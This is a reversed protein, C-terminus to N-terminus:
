AAKLEKATSAVHLSYVPARCLIEFQWIDGKFGSPLRVPRGNKPVAQDYRLVRNVYVKFRVKETTPMIATGWNVNSYRADDWYIAYSAFNEEFPYQFEKSRWVVPMLQTNVAPTPTESDLRVPDWLMIKGDAQIAFVNGSWVDNFLNVVDYVLDVSADANVESIETLAVKLSTPDLFFANNASIPWDRLALYGNQYRSARIISPMYDRTWEERTILKETLNQMGGAGVMILGNPSAWVVGNPSTVISGRSLCPEMTTSKTFSVTSPHTGTATAPYGQTCVVCTQGFVGLGIIPYETSQEYEAPWAHFRYPDTMLLRNGGTFGILFGNAM